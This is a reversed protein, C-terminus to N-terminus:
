PGFFINSKETLNELFDFSSSEAQSCANEVIKAGEIQLIPNFCLPNM